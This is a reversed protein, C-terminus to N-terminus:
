RRGYARAAPAARAAPVLDVPAVRRWRRRLRGQYQPTRILRLWPWGIFRFWCRWGASTPQSSVGPSQLRGDGFHSEQFHIGSPVMTGCEGRPLRFAAIGTPTVAKGPRDPRALDDGGRRLRAELTRSGQKRRCDFELGGPRGIAKGDVTWPPKATTTGASRLRHLIRAQRRCAGHQRHHDEVSEAKELFQTKSLPCPSKAMARVTDRGTGPVMPTAAIAPRLDQRAPATARDTCCSCTDRRPHRAFIEQLRNDIVPRTQSARAVPELGLPAAASAVAEPADEAQDGVVGDGGGAHRSRRSGLHAGSGFDV